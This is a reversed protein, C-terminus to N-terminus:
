SLVVSKCYTISDNKTSAGFTSKLTVPEGKIAKDMVFKIISWAAKWKAHCAKVEGALVQAIYDVLFAPICYMCFLFKVPIALVNGITKLFKKM